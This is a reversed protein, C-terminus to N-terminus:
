GASEDAAQQLASWQGTEPFLPDYTCTSDPDEPQWLESAAEYCARHMTMATPCTAGQATLETSYSDEPSVNQGCIDCTTLFGFNRAQETQEM